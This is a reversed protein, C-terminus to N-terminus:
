YGLKNMIINFDQIDLKDVFAVLLTNDIQSILIYDENITKGYFWNYNDGNRTIPKNANDLNFDEKYYKAKQDNEYMKEIIVADEEKSYIMFLVQTRNAYIAEAKFKPMCSSDHNSLKSIIDTKEGNNRREFGDYVVYNNAKMTDCFKALSISSRTNCSRVLLIIAVVIVVVILFKKLRESKIM